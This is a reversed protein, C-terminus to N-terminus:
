QQWVLLIESKQKAPLQMFSSAWTAVLQTLNHLGFVFCATSSQSAVYLMVFVFLFQWGIRFRVAFETM